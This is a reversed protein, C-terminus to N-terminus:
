TKKMNETLTRRKKEKCIVVSRADARALPAKTGAKRPFQSLSVFPSLTLAFRSLLAHCFTDVKLILSNLHCTKMIAFNAMPVSHIQPRTQHDMCVHSTKLRESNSKANGLCTRYIVQSNLTQVRQSALAIREIEKVFSSCM